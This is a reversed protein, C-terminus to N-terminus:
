FISPSPLPTDYVKIHIKLVEPLVKKILIEKRTLRPYRAVVSKRIIARLSSEPLTDLTEYIRAIGVQLLKRVVYCNAYGIDSGLRFGIVSYIERNTYGLRDARLLFLKFLEGKHKNLLNERSRRASEPTTQDICRWSVNEVDYLLGFPIFDNRFHGTRIYYNSEYAFLQNLISM